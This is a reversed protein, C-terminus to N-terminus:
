FRGKKSSIQFGGWRGMPAKRSDNSGHEREEILNIEETMKGGGTRGGEETKQSHLFFIKRSGVDPNTNHELSTPSNKGAGRKV